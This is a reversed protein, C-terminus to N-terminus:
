LFFLCIVVNKRYLLPVHLAFGWLNSELTMEEDALNCLCVRCLMQCDFARSNRVPNGCPQVFGHKAITFNPGISIRMKLIQLNSERGYSKCIRIKAFKHVM